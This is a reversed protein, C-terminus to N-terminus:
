IEADLIQARSLNSRWTGEKVCSHGEWGGVGVPVQRFVMEQVHKDQRTRSSHAFQSCLSSDVPSEVSIAKQGKLSGVM